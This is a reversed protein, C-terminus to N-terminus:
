LVSKIFGLRIKAEPNDTFFKELTECAYENCTACNPLKKERACNRIQCDYCGPFLTGNESLCGECDTIDAPKFKTGYLENSLKAIEIKMKEKLGENKEHTAWQIPCGQCLLGCYAVVKEM